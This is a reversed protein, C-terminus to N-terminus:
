WMRERYKFSSMPSWRLSKKKKCSEKNSRSLTEFSKPRATFTRQCAVERGDLQLYSVFGNEKVIMLSWHVAAEKIVSKLPKTFSFCYNHPLHYSKEYLTICHNIKLICYWSIPLVLFLCYSLEHRPLFVSLLSLPVECRIFMGAAVLVWLADSHTALLWYWYPSDMAVSLCLPM